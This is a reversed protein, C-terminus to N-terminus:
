YPLDLESYERAQAILASRLKSDSIRLFFTIMQLLESEPITTKTAQLSTETDRSPLNEFFYSNPVGLTAALKLLHKVGLRTEGSEYKRVQQQSVGLLNAVQQQTLSHSRRLAQIREGVHKDVAEYIKQKPM